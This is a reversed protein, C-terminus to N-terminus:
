ALAEAHAYVEETALGAEVATQLARRDDGAHYWHHARNALLLSPPHASARRAEDLARARRRYVRRREGALHAGSTPATMWAHRVAYGDEESRVLVHCALAERLSRELDREAMDAVAALEDHTIARPAASVVGLMRQTPESLMEVRAMVIERVPM